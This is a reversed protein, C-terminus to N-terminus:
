HGHLRCACAGSQQRSSPTLTVDLRSLDLVTQLCANWATSGVATICLLLSSRCTVVIFGVVCCLDAAVGNYCNGSSCGPSTVSFDNTAFLHTDNTFVGGGSM